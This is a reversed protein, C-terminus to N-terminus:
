PPLCLGRDEGGLSGMVPERGQDIKIFLTEGGIFEPDDGLKVFARCAPLERARLALNGRHQRTRRPRAKGGRHARHGPADALQEGGVSVSPPCINSVM